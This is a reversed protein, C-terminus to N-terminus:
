SKCANEFDKNKYIKGSATEKICKYGQKKSKKVHNCWKKKQTKSIKQGTSQDRTKGLRVNHAVINYWPNNVKYYKRTRKNKNTRKRSKSPHGKGELTKFREQLHQLYVPGEEYRKKLWEKEGETIPRGLKKEIIPFRAASYGREGYRQKEPPTPTLGTRPKTKTKPETKKAKTKKTKKTKTKKRQTIRKWLKQFM